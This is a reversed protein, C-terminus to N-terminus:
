ESKTSEDLPKVEISWEGTLWDMLESEGHEIGGDLASEMITGYILNRTPQDTVASIIKRLDDEGHVDDALDMFSQYEDEGFMEAFRAATDAEEESSVGDAKVMREFLSVCALKADRNLDKLEM